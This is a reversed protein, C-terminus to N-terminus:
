KRGAEIEDMLALVKDYIQERAKIAIAFDMHSCDELVEFSLVNPLVDRLHEADAIVATTDTDGVFISTKATVRTLDYEPAM